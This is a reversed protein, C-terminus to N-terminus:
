IDGEDKITLQPQPQAGQQMFQQINEEKEQKLKALEAQTDTVWPHNSVITEDSIIGTSTKCNTITETENMMRDRNFIFDVDGIGPNLKKVFQMTQQLAAQFEMEMEDADLDIDNYMSQINMQNPNGASLKEDKMDLGRGNEIIASKFLDILAKYNDANVDIKLSEVGGDDANVNVAGFQALNKRFTGLDNDGYNKVVLVTNRPDEEMRDTFNSIIENLGDQLSKVRRILPLEEENAKFAILPIMGWNYAKADQGAEDNVVIYPTIDASEPRLSGGEFTFKQVGDQTYWEVRPIYEKQSGLYVEQVYMRAFADLQTHEDDAWFPLIEFGHFRKFKLIGNDVYPFLYSIGCNLCDKGINKLTRRFDPGFISKVKDDQAKDQAKAEMPKALLYNTKQDVLFSYRNDLIKNNPLNYVPQLQGGTGIVTRQKDYIAQRYMYYGYGDLQSQRTLSHIWEDLEYQLFQQDNLNDAAGKAIIAKYFDNLFM